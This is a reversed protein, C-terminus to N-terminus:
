IAQLVSKHDFRMSRPKDCIHRIQATNKITMFFGSFSTSRIEAPQLGAEHRPLRSFGVKIGARLAKMDHAPTEVGRVQGIEDQNCCIQTSHNNKVAAFAFLGHQDPNYGRL